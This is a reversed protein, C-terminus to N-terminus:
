LEVILEKRFADRQQNHSQCSLVCQQQQQNYSYLHVAHVNGDFYHNEDIEIALIDIIEIM